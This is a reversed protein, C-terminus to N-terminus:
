QGNARDNVIRTSRKLKDLLTGHPMAKVNVECNNKSIGEFFNGHSKSDLEAKFSEDRHRASIVDTKKSNNIHDIGPRSKRFKDNHININININGNNSSSTQKFKLRNKLPNDTSRNLSGVEKRVRNIGKLTRNLINQSRSQRDTRTESAVWTQVKDVGNNKAELYRLSEVFSKYKKKHNEAHKIKKGPSNISQSGTMNDEISIDNKDHYNSSDGSKEMSFDEFPVPLIVVHSKKTTRRKKLKM